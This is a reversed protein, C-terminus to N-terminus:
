RVTEDNGGIYLAEAGESGEEGLYTGLTGLQGACGETQYKPSASHLCSPIEPLHCNRWTYSVVSYCCKISPTITLTLTFCQVTDIVYYM